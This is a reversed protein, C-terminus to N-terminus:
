VHYQRTAYCTGLTCPPLRLAHDNYQGPVHFGFRRLLEGGLLMAMAPHQQQSHPHSCIHSAPLAVDEQAAVPLGWWLIIVPLGGWSIGNGRCALNVVEASHSFGIAMCNCPQSDMCTRSHMVACPTMACNMARHCCKCEGEVVAYCSLRAQAPELWAIGDYLRVWCREYM